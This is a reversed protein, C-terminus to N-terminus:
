EGGKRKVFSQIYGSPYRQQLAKSGYHRFKIAYEFDIRKKKLEKLVDTLDEDKDLKNKIVTELFFGDAYMAYKEGVKKALSKLIERHTIRGTGEKEIEDRCMWYEEWTLWGKTFADHIKNIRALNPMM